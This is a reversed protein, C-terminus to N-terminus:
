PLSTFYVVDTQRKIVSGTTVGYDVWDYEVRSTLLANGNYTLNTIATKSGAGAADTETRREQKVYPNNVPPLYGVISQVSNHAWTREVVLGDPGVIKSIRERDSTEFTKTVVGGDPNTTVFAANPYAYSWTDTTRDNTEGDTVTRM